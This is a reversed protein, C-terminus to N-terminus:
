AVPHDGMPGVAALTRESALVAAAVERVDDTTVARLKRLYEDIALVEGRTTMSGALRAMRSGTDELGLVTSGALYGQAIALEEDSVGDSALSGCVEDIIALVERARQPATGAYITLAGADSYSSMASYVSYALGREERIQQFLRSSLGGGLV